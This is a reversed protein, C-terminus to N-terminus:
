DIMGMDQMDQIHEAEELMVLDMMLAKMKAKILNKANEFSNVDNDKMIHKANRLIQSETLVSLRERIQEKITENM